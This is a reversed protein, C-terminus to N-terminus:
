QTSYILTIGPFSCQLQLLSVERCERRAIIFIDECSQASIAKAALRLALPAGRPDEAREKPGNENPTHEKHELSRQTRHRRIKHAPGPVAENRALKPTPGRIAQVVQQNIPIVTRTKAYIDCLVNSRIEQPFFM